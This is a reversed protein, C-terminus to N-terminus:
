QLQTPFSWWKCWRKPSWKGTDFAQTTFICPLAGLCLHQMSPEEYYQAFTTNRRGVKRWRWIRDSGARDGGDSRLGAVIWAEDVRGRINGQSLRGRQIGRVRQYFKKTRRREVGVGVARQQWAGRRGRGRNPQTARRPRESEGGHSGKWETIEGGGKV